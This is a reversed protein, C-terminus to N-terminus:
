GDYHSRENPTLGPRHHHVAQTVEREECKKM